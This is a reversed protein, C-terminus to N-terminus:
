TEALSKYIGVIPGIWRNEQLLIPLSITPIYLDSVSDRIYSNPILGSLKM